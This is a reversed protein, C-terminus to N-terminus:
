SPRSYDRNPLARGSRQHQRQQRRPGPPWSADPLCKEAGAWFRHGVSPVLSPGLLVDLDAVAVRIHRNDLEVPLVVHAVALLEASDEM